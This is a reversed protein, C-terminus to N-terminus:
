RTQKALETNLARLLPFAQDALHDEDMTWLAAGGLKQSVIYEAQLRAIL